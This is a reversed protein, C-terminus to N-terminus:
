HIQPNSARAHEKVQKKVFLADPINEQILEKLHKKDHISLKDPTLGNELLIRRYADNIMNM